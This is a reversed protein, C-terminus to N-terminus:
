NVWGLHAADDAGVATFLETLSTRLNNKREIAHDLFVEAIQTKTPTPTGHRKAAIKTMTPVWGVDHNVGHTAVPELMSRYDADDIAEFAKIVPLAAKARLRVGDGLAGAAVAGYLVQYVPKGYNGTPHWSADLKDRGFFKFAQGQDVPCVGGSPSRLVNSNHGDHDGVAWAAVQLAVISDVDSQSWTSPSASLHSAGAILPQVCGTKGGITTVHVPVGAIGVRRYITSAISEAHARAGNASKDPKFMWQKGDPGTHVTSTHSGKSYPTGTGWDHGDIAAASVAAPLDTAIAQHARLKAKLQGLSNSYALARAAVGSGSPTAGATKKSKKTKTSTTTTAATTIPTSLPTPTAKVAVTKAIADADHSSDWNSAIYNQAQARTAHQHHELGLQAAAARITTLPATKAWARFSTTLKKSRAVPDVIGLQHQQEWPVLDGGTGSVWGAVDHLAGAHVAAGDVWTVIQDPSATGLDTLGQTTHGGADRAALLAEYQQHRHTAIQTLQDRESAATSGRALAMAQTPNLMAAHDEVMGSDILTQRLDATPVTQATVLQAVSGQLAALSTGLQPCEADHLKAEAELLQIKQSTTMSPTSALENIQASLEAIQAPTAVWTGGPQSTTPLDAFTIGNITEGAALQQYRETAKAQIAAKSVAADGYVPDLWHVLPHPSTNGFGVLEPHEFGTTAALSQLASPDLAGLVQASAQKAQAVVDPDDDELLSHVAATLQELEDTGFDDTAALEELHALTDLEAPQENPEPHDLVGVASAPAIVFAEHAKSGGSGM